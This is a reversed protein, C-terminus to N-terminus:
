IKTSELTSDDGYYDPCSCVVSDPPLVRKSPPERVDVGGGVRLGLGPHHQVLEGLEVAPGAGHPQLWVYITLKGM